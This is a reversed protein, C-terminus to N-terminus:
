SLSLLSPSMSLSSLSWWWWWCCRRRRRRRRCLYVRTRVCMCMEPCEKAAGDAGGGEERGSLRVFNSGGCLPPDDGRARNGKRPNLFLSGLFAFASGHPGRFSPRVALSLSVSASFVRAAKCEPLVRGTTRAYERNKWIPLWRSRAIAQKPISWMHCYLGRQANPLHFWHTCGSVSGFTGHSGEAARPCPQPPPQSQSQQRAECMTTNAVALASVSATAAATAACKCNHRCHLRHKHPSM